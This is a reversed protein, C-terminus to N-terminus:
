AQIPAIVFQRIFGAPDRETIEVVYSQPRPPEVFIQPEVSVAAPQVVNEVRGEASAPQVNVVPAPAEPATVNVVPPAQEPLNVTVTPAPAAPVNVVAEPRARVAGAVDGVATALDQIERAVLAADSM